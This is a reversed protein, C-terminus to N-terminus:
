NSITNNNPEVYYEDFFKQSLHFKEKLREAKVRTLQGKQLLLKVNPLLFFSTEHINVPVNLIKILTRLHIAGMGIVAGKSSNARITSVQFRTTMEHHEVCTYIEKISDLPVHSSKKFLFKKFTIKESDIVIYGGFMNIALPFNIILLAGLVILGVEQKVIGCSLAYIGLPLSAVSILYAFMSFPRYIKRRLLM